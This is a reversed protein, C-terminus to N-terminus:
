VIKTLSYENNMLIFLKTLSYEDFRIFIFLKTLSYEDFRIFQINM